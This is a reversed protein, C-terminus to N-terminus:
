LLVVIYINTLFIPPFVIAWNANWVIGNICIYVSHIVFYKKVIVNMVYFSCVSFSTRRLIKDCFKKKRFTNENISIQNSYINKKNYIFIRKKFIIFITLIFIVKLWITCLIELWVFLLCDLIFLKHMLNKVKSNNFHIKVFVFFHLNLWIVSIKFYM